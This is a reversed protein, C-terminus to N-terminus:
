STFVLRPLGRQYRVRWWCPHLGLVNTLEYKYKTVAWGNLFLGMHFINLLGPTAPATRCIGKDSM